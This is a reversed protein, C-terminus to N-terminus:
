NPDKAETEFGQTTQIFQWSGDAEIILGSLYGKYVCGTDLAINGHILSPVSGGNLSSVPTHGFIVPKHYASPSQYFAERIWILDRLSQAELPIGPQIGGHVYLYHEDEFYPRLTKALSLFQAQSGTNQSFSELTQAAGNRMWREQNEGAFYELAMHEHNGLLAVVQTEGFDAILQVLRAIVGASDPGRDIYDGLLILRDRSLAMDYEREFRELLENFAKLCGHVDGIVFTRKPRVHTKTKM